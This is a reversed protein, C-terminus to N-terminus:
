DRDHRSVADRLSAWSMENNLTDAEWRSEMQEHWEGHRQADVVWSGCRDCTYGGSGREAGSRSAPVGRRFDDAAIWLEHWREAVTEPPVDLALGLKRVLHWTPAAKGALVKSLTTRAYGVRDAVADLDPRDAAVWAQKLAEALANGATAGALWPPPAAHNIV